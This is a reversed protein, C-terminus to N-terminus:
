ESDRVLSIWGWGPVNLRLEQDELTYSEVSPLTATLKQSFPSDCCMKSCGITSCEIGNNERLLYAGSCTNVDLKIQITGEETFEMIPSYDNDKPYGVSEISMFSDVRWKGILPADTCNCNEKKCAAFLLILIGSLVFLASRM